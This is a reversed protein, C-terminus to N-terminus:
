PEEECIRASTIQTHDLVGRKALEELISEDAGEEHCPHNKDMFFACLKQLKSQKQDDDDIGAVSLGSTFLLTVSLFLKKM